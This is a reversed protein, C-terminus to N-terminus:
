QAMDGASLKGIQHELMTNVDVAFQQSYVQIRGPTV